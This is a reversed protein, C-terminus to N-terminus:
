EQPAAAAQADLAAQLYDRRREFRDQPVGWDGTMKSEDALLDHLGQLDNNVLHQQIETRTSPKYDGRYLLDVAVDKIAPDLNDFDVSGYKAVTDDKNSIREVESEYHDYVKTFLEKQAAPTIEIAAVDERKTFDSAAKGELGAGQALLEADADPVGAAILDSRVTEESRGKMDYGRGVTVGSAGGPWHAERSFYAGRTELGEADFTLQGKPVEFDSVFTQPTPNLPTAGLLEPAAELAKAPDFAAADMPQNRIPTSSMLNPMSAVDKAPEFTSQDFNVTPTKAVPNSQAVDPTTKNVSTTANASSSQSTSSRSSVSSSGSSSSRTSDVGM